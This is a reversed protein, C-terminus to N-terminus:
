AAAELEIEVEVEDPSDPEGVLVCRWSGTDEPLDVEIINLCLGPRQRPSPWGWAIEEEKADPYNENKIPGTRMFEDRLFAPVTPSIVHERAARTPEPEKEIAPSRKAAEVDAALKERQKNILRRIRHHNVSLQAAIALANPRRGPRHLKRIADAEAPYEDAFQRLKAVLPEDIQHVPESENDADLEQWSAAIQPPQLLEGATVTNPQPEDGDEGDFGAPDDVYEPALNTFEHHERVAVKFAVKFNEKIWVAIPIGRDQFDFVTKGQKSSVADRAEDRILQRNTRFGRMSATKSKNRRRDRQAERLFHRGDDSTVDEGYVLQFWLDSAADQLYHPLVRSVYIPELTKLDDKVEKVSVRSLAGPTHHAFLFAIYFYLVSQFRESGLGHM